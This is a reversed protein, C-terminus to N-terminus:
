RWGSTRIRWGVNGGITCESLIGRALKQLRSRNDRAGALNGVGLGVAKVARGTMGEGSGGQRRRQALPLTPGNMVVDTLQKRCKLGQTAVRNVGRRGAPVM